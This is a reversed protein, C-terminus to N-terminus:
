LQLPPQFERRAHGSIWPPKNINIPRAASQRLPSFMRTGEASLMGFCCMHIGTMTTFADLLRHQASTDAFNSPLSCKLWPQTAVLSEQLSNM